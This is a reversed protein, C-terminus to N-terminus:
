GSHRLSIQTGAASPWTQTQPGTCGLDTNIHSRIGDFAMSIGPTQAVVQPWTPTQPGHQQLGWISRPSRHQWPAITFDQGLSSDLDMDPDMTRSCNPDTNIDMAWTITWLPGYSGPMNFDLLGVSGWGGSARSSSARGRM